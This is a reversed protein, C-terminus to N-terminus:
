LSSLSARARHTRHPVNCLKYVFIIILSKIVENLPKTRSRVSAGLFKYQLALVVQLKVSLCLARVLTDSTYVLYSRSAKAKRTATALHLKAAPRLWGKM